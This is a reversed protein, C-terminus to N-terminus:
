VADPLDYSTVLKLKLTPEAAQVREFDHDCAVVCIDREHAQACIWLDNENVALRAGTANDIWDELHSRRQSAKPLFKAVMAAKLRGYSLAVHRDVVLLDYAEAQKLTQQATVPRQGKIAFISDVGSQLEGLSVSSVFQLDEGALSALFDNAPQHFPSRANTLAILMSTDFLYGAM